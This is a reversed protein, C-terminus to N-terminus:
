AYDHSIEQMRHSEMDDNSPPRPTQRWVPRPPPAPPSVSRLRNLTPAAVAPKAMAVRSLVTLSPTRPMAAQQEAPPQRLLPVAVLLALCAAATAVAPWWARPPPKSSSLRADIRRALHAPAEIAQYQRRLQDIDDTM